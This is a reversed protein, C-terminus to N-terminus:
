TTEGAAATYLARVTEITDAENPNKDARYAKIRAHRLAVGGPYHPSKQVDNFAVEAVVEPRMHVVWEDERTKLTAFHETQWKLMEDTMGKFTKGIMVFSGDAARAGLHVNSLWGKRRGSGWEVALIVLDLTHSSKLKFWGQGRRGAQYVADEAKAMVGEHGAELAREYFAEAAAEEDTVLRPTLSGTPVFDELVARRSHTQEDILDRGDVYLCDFFFPSVPLTERLEAVDLKRGFRRMTTQFVHPVGSERLAVVEGDLIFRERRYSRAQEVVEPLAATVSRLNRTYIEVRDADRHVQIRAGDIKYEFAATGHKALIDAVREAPHALMPQLPRFLSIRYQALADSGGSFASESAAALDGSLMVARRMMMPDVGAASAVADIVLSELAGQRIEGVVLRMLFKQEPETARSLLRHWADLRRQVSGKGAIAKIETLVSDVGLLDLSTESASSTPSNKFVASYGLGIKGQPM